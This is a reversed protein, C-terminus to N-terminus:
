PAPHSRARDAGPLRRPHRSQLGQLMDIRETACGPSLSEGIGEREDPPSSVRPLDNGAFPRRSDRDKGGVQFENLLKRLNVGIQQLGVPDLHAAPQIVAPPQIEHLYGCGAPPTVNRRRHQGQPMIKVLLQRRLRRMRGAVKQRIKLGGVPKGSIHRIGQFVPQHLCLRDDIAFMEPLDSEATLRHFPMFPKGPRFPQNLVTQGGKDQEMGAMDESRDIGKVVERRGLTGPSALSRDAIQQGTEPLFGGDGARDGLSPPQQLLFERCARRFQTRKGCVAAKSQGSKLHCLSRDLDILSPHRTGSGGPHRMKEGDEQETLGDMATQRNKQQSVKFLIEAPRFLDVQEFADPVDAPGALNDVGRCGAMGSVPVTPGADQVKLFCLIGPKECCGGRRRTFKAM